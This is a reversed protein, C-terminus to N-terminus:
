VTYIRCNLVELILLFSSDGSVTVLDSAGSAFQFYLPMFEPAFHWFNLFITVPHNCQFDSTWACQKLFDCELVKLSKWVFIWPSELVMDTELSKWPRSFWPFLNLSKWPGDSGQLSNDVLVSHVQVSMSINLSPSQDTHIGVEIVSEHCNCKEGIEMRREASDILSCYKNLIKLYICLYVSSYRLPACVLM